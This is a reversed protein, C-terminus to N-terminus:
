FLEGQRSPRRFTSPADPTDDGGDEEDDETNLGLRRCHAEFIAQIADWRPGVGTMRANFRSENLKGNRIQLLANTVKSVRNPYAKELREFFVPKVEAALRVPLVCAHRAGAAHARELIEPIQPDNLGPIVPAINVSAEIGAETLVRIAEFRLRPKAAYPEVHKAMEEDVFPISLTVSAGAHRVLDALVDVDRRVLASKTVIHIPNRYELCVKLCERTLRYSAELPQYCDTNGSFMVMEGRWSKKEFTERLRGPANTKVVIKTDFDTGAGFGWYQHSPRAYCNHSIVGNAIFDGTGTTIDYLRLAIGLPTISRVRARGDPRVLVDGARLEFVRRWGDPTLFRHAASAVIPAGDLEVRHARRTVSWHDVVRTPRQERGALIEDGVRLEAIARAAGNALLVPTEGDVCYACAHQCGRYPNLSFRMGVDPSDNESLISKAEEEFVTLEAAPPEGIWEVDTSLWPNPPNAIPRV